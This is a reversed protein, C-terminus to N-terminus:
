LAVHGEALVPGRASARQYGEPTGRRTGACGSRGCECAFEVSPLVAIGAAERWLLGQQVLATNEYARQARLPGGQELRRAKQLVTGLAGVVEDHVADWDPRDDVEIRPRGTAELSARLRRLVAADRQALREARAQGAADNAAAARDRRVRATRAAGAVLWVAGPVGYSAAGAPSLQPGEVVVPVDGATRDRIDNIVLPIREACVRHWVEVAHDTGLALQDDLPELPSMLPLHAYTFADIHQCPLDYRRAIRDAITTKGAGHMGGIWIM